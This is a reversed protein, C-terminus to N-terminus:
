YHKKNKNSQSVKDEKGAKDKKRAVTTGCIHKMDVLGDIGSVFDM